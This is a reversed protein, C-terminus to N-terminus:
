SKNETKRGIITDKSVNIEKFQQCEEASPYRKAFNQLEARM